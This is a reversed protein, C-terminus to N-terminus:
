RESRYLFPEQQADVAQARTGYMYAWTQAAWLGGLLRVLSDRRDLLHSALTQPDLMRMDEGSAADSGARGVRCAAEVWSRVERASLRSLRYAMEAAVARVSTPNRLEDGRTKTSADRAFGALRRVFPACHEGYPFQSLDALADDPLTADFNAAERRFTSTLAPLSPVAERQALALDYAQAKLRGQFGLHLCADFDLSMACPLDNMDRWVGINEMFVNCMDWNGLWLGAIYHRELASQYVDPLAQCLRLRMANRHALADAYARASEGRLAHFPLGGADALVQAMRARADIAEARAHRLWPPAPQGAGEFVRWADDGEIWEGLDRYGSLFTTALYVRDPELTCDFAQSCGKVLMATPTALGLAGFLRSALWAQAAHAPSPYAKVVYQPADALPMLSMRVAGESSGLAPADPVRTASSFDYPGIDPLPAGSGDHGIVAGFVGSPGAEPLLRGSAPVDSHLWNHNVDVQAKYANARM